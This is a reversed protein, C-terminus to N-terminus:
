CHWVDAGSVKELAAMGEGEHYRLEEEADKDAASTHLMFHVDLIYRFM